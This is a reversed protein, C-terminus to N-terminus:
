LERCQTVLEKVEEKLRKNKDCDKWDSFYTKITVAKLKYGTIENFAEAVRKYGENTGQQCNLSDYLPDIMKLENLLFFLKKGEKKPRERTEEEGKLERIKKYLANKYRQEQELISELWREQESTRNFDDLEYEKKVRDFFEDNFGTPNELEKELEQIILEQPTGLEKLDEIIIDVNEKAKRLSHKKDSEPDYDEPFLDWLDFDRGM